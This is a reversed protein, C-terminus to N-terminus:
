LVEMMAKRKWAELTENVFRNATRTHIGQHKLFAPLIRGLDLFTLKEPEFPRVVFCVGSTSNRRQSLIDQFERTEVKVQEVSPFEKSIVGWARSKHKRTTVSYGDSNWLLSYPYRLWMAVPFHEGYSYLVGDRLFFHSGWLEGGKPEDNKAFRTAVDYNSTM